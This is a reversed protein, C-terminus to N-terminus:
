IENKSDDWGNQYAIGIHERILDYIKQNYEENKYEPCNKALFKKFTKINM